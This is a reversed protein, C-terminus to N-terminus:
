QLLIPLYCTVQINVQCTGLKFLDQVKKPGLEATVPFNIMDTHLRRIIKLSRLDLITLWPQCGWIGAGSEIDPFVISDAM